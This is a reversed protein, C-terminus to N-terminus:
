VEVSICIKASDVAVVWATSMGFIMTFSLPLRKVVLIRGIPELASFDGWVASRIGSRSSM